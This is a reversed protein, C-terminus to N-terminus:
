RHPTQAAQRMALSRRVGKVAAATWQGLTRHQFQARNLAGAIVTDRVGHARGQAIRELAEQEREDEVMKGDEYRFGWPANRCYRKGTAKLHSLASVTRESVLGRELECLAAMMQLFFRGFATTTDLHDQIAVIAYGEKGSAEFIDLVDRVSRSLRSLTTFVLTDGSKIESLIHMLGPRKKVTSASIGEDSVHMPLGLDNMACYAAIKARQADLSVGVDRQEETSVRSYGYITM